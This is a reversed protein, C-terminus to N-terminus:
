EIGNKINDGRSGKKKLSNLAFLIIIGFYIMLFSYFLFIKNFFVNFLYGSFILVSLWIVQLTVSGIILQQDLITDHIKQNMLGISTILSSTFTLCICISGIIILDESKYLEPHYIYISIIWFPILILNILFSKLDKPIKSIDLMNNM